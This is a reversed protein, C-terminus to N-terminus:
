GHDPRATEPLGIESWIRRAETAATKAGDPDDAADLAKSLAFLARALAALTYPGAVQSLSAIHRRRNVAEGWAECAGSDDGKHAQVRATIEWWRAVRLHVGAFIPSIRKDIIDRRAALLDEEAGTLDGAALRCEARTVWAGARQNAFIRGTQAEMIAVAESALELALAFDSRRLACRVQNELMMCLMPAIVAQRAAATAAKASLEARDLDGLLFFLRSLDLHAKSILGQNGTPKELALAKHYRSEAGPWDGRAECQAAEEKLLIQPTPNKEAEDMAMQFARLAAAEM